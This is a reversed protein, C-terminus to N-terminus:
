GHPEGEDPFRALLAGLEDRRLAQPPEGFVGRAAAALERPAMSWFETASLRLVGFGFAMAERWPFAAPTM